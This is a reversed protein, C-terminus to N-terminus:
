QVFSESVWVPLDGSGAPFCQLLMPVAGSVEGPSQLGVTHIPEPPFEVCGQKQNNYNVRSNAECDEDSLEQVGLDHRGTRSPESVAWSSFVM